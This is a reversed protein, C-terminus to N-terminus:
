DDHIHPRICSPFKPKAPAFVAGARGHINHRFRRNGVFRSSPLRSSRHATRETSSFFLCTCPEDEPQDQELVTELESATPSLPPSAYDRFPQRNLQLSTVSTKRRKKAALSSMMALAEAKIDIERDEPLVELLSPPRENPNTVAQHQPNHGFTISVEDVIDPISSHTGADSSKDSGSSSSDTSAISFARPRSTRSFFSSISHDPRHKSPYYKSRLVDPTSISTHSSADSTTRTRFRASIVSADDHGSRVSGDRSLGATSATFYSSLVSRTSSSSERKRSNEYLDFDRRWYGFFDTVVHSARIEQLLSPLDEQYLAEVLATLEANRQSVLAQSVRFLTGKKTLRPLHKHIDQAVSDPHPGPPLSEFSAARDQLYLGNKKVGKGRLLRQKKERALRSYEQELADQFLLCDEWRRWIDYESVSRTTTTSMRDNRNVASIRM